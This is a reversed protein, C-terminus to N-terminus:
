RPTPRWRRSRLMDLVTEAKHALEKVKDPRLLRQRGQHLPRGPLGQQGARRRNAGGRRSPAAPRGRHRGPARPVRGSIRELLEDDNGSGM